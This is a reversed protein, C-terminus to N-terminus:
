SAFSLPKNLNGMLAWMYMYMDFYIFILPIIPGQLDKASSLNFMDPSVIMPYPFVLQQYRPPIRDLVARVMKKDLQSPLSYAAM